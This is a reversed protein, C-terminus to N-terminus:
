LSHTLLGVGLSHWPLIGWLWLRPSQFGLAACLERLPLGARHVRFTQQPTCACETCAHAPSCVQSPLARM